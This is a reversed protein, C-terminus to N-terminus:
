RERRRAHTHCVIRSLEGISHQALQPSMKCSDLECAAFTDTLHSQSLEPCISIHHHSNNDYGPTTAVLPFEHSVKTSSPHSESLILDGLYPLAAVAGSEKGWCGAGEKPRSTIYWAFMGLTAARYRSVGTVSQRLGDSLM